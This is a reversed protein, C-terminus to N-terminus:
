NYTKNTFTNLVNGFKNHLNVWFRSATFERRWPGKKTEITFFNSRLLICTKKARSVCVYCLRQDEALAIPNNLRYYNPFHNDEMGLLIVVEFELGKSSHRTTITVENEPFGLNAFRRIDATKLNKLKAEQLLKDLNGIENPYIESNNLITKINLENIVYELWMFCNKFGKSTYLIIYFQSKIRINEWEKRPDNHDNILKKWFKFLDDFSQKGKECCWRACDQLWVAVASNEFNWNVIFFSIYEKQLFQAMEQAQANSGVIIGIENLSVGKAILNPILKDAVIEYQPDMEEECTIFLFDAVDNKLKEAVYSPAPPELSLTELSADIIPQSSRYNSTLEITTIEDYDTLERLFEPYGGNFGYISQNADGVAYIKMGAFLALDLVMEHLAKGLDQYEDILLWPFKCQLSRRVYAQENIIKASLNIIDIFDIFETQRLKTEFIIAGNVVLPSSTAHINSRGNLSLSRHKNIDTLSLTRSDKINLEKLVSNYIGNKIDDSLIKIPLPIGYQPYLHAFPQIIHLLSFSHVTGIFDRNGPIYGYQKLRKKLERVTERSYSICALGSPKHIETKDLSVAKLALVRTKGSGPGAIVVTNNTSRYAEYQKEDKRILELDKYFEDNM